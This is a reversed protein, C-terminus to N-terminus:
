RYSKAMSCSRNIRKILISFSPPISKTTMKIEVYTLGEAMREMRWGIDGASNLLAFSREYGRIHEEPTVGTSLRNNKENEALMALTHDLEHMLNQKETPPITAVEARKRLQDIEKQPVQWVDLLEVSFYM